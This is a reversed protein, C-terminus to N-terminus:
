VTVLQLDGLRLIPMWVIGPVALPRSLPPLSSFATPLRIGGCGRGYRADVVLRSIDNRVLLFANAALIVLTWVFSAEAARTRRQPVVHSSLGGNVPLEPACQVTDM